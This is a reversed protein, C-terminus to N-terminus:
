LELADQTMSFDIITTKVTLTPAWHPNQLRSTMYLRFNDDFDVNQGAIKIM